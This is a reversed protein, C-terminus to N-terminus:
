KQKRQARARASKLYKHIAEERAELTKFEQFRNSSGYPAGNRTAQPEFAFVREPEGEVVGFVQEPPAPVYDILWTEIQAGIARGRSDSAEFDYRAIHRTHDLHKYTIRM